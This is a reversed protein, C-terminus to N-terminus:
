KASMLDPAQHAYTSTLTLYDADLLRPYKLPDYWCVDDIRQLCDGIIALSGM